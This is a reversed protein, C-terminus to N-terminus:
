RLWGLTWLIGITPMVVFWAICCAAVLLSAVAALAIGVGESMHAGRREVKFAKTM